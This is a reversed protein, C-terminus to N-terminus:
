PATLENVLQRWSEHPKDKLPAKAFTEAPLRFKAAPVAIRRVPSTETIQLIWGPETAHPLAAVAPQEHWRDWDVYNGRSELVVRDEDIREEVFPPRLVFPVAWTWVYAGRIMEPVDLLLPAGARLEPALRRLERCAEGSVLSAEHWPQMTRSLREAYLVTLALAAVAYVARLRLLGRLVLALAVCLGASALYLHRPSIYTVILPLTAVLYWGVAFFLGARREEVERWRARWRWGALIAAIGGLVLSGVLLAHEKVLPADERFWWRLPPFLHGVYTLQREALQTYFAISKFDPLGAGVGSPGFAARRGFYYGTVVLVALGYPVWTRGHLWDRGRTRWMADALLCMLPLTLGFEKAFAAAAYCGAFALAWRWGGKERFRLFACFGALYFTTALLDVRGTIWQVPEAHAPHLAFLITAVVGCILERGAMRWALLGVMAACAAHLLLNTLRYGFANGAWLRADVMFSLATVPRLERLEFGWMNGAWSQGFLAPWKAMPYDFFRGVYGFDDGLFYGDLTWGFGAASVVLALLVIIRRPSRWGM